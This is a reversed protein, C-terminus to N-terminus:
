LRLRPANYSGWKRYGAVTAAGLLVLGSTVRANAPKTGRAKEAGESETKYAKRLRVRFSENSGRSEQGIDVPRFYQKFPFMLMNASRSFVQVHEKVTALDDAMGQVSVEVNSVRDQLKGVSGELKGVSHQLNSVSHQLNSVSHELNSVSHELNSVSHELNSVSHELNSVSHELNSVRHELNSVSHELNSVSHELNSVSHELNSVSDQLRRVMEPLDLLVPAGSVRCHRRRSFQRVDAKTQSHAREGRDERKALPRTVDDNVAMLLEAFLSANLHGLGDDETWAQLVAQEHEKLGLTSLWQKDEADPHSSTM